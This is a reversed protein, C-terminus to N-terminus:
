RTMRCHGHWHRPEREMRRNPQQRLCVLIQYIEDGIQQQMTENRLYITWLKGTRSQGSPNCPHLGQNGPCLGQRMLWNPHALEMTKAFTLFVFPASTTQM